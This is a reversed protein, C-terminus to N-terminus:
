VSQLSRAVRFDSESAGEESRSVSLEFVTVRPKGTPSLNPKLEQQHVTETCIISVFRDYYQQTRGALAGLIESVQDFQAATSAPSAVSWVTLGALALRALNRVRGM